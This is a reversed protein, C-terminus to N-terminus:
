SAPRWKTPSPSCYFFKFTLLLLIHTPKAVIHLGCQLLPLYFPHSRSSCTWYDLYLAGSRLWPPTIFTSFVHSTPLCVQCNTSIALSPIFPESTILLYHRLGGHLPIHPLDPVQNQLPSKLPNVQLYNPILSHQEPTHVPQHPSLPITHVFPLTSVSSNTVNGLLFLSSLFSKPKILMLPALFPPIWLTPM